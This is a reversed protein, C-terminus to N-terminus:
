LYTPRGASSDNSEETQGSSSVLPHVTLARSAHEGRDVGAEDRDLLGPADAAHLRRQPDRLSRRLARAPPRRYEISAARRPAAVAIYDIMSLHQVYECLGVGGAHPWVPLGYKAAMLLVRCCRTSAAWAAPTSRCSTSPAARHHVAQVRHPEPVDRRDRGQGARGGRPDQPPGRCRRPQDAGRHVLTQSPQAANVWDIAQDVEWVQNADIM